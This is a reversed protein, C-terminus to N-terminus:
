ADSVEPGGALWGDMEALDDASPYQITTTDEIVRGIATPMHTAGLGTLTQSWTVTYYVTGQAADAVTFLPKFEPGPVPEPASIGRLGWFCIDVDALMLMLQNGIALAVAEKEVRRSEVPRAEAVIYAVWDVVLSYHGDIARLTRVRSWGIGVGPAAVLSKGVLESIDVKGPHLIVAIGPLYTKVEQVIARQAPAVPDAALLQALTAPALTM